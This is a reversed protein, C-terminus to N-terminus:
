KSNLSVCLFSAQNQLNSLFEDWFLDLQMGVKNESGRCPIEIQFDWLGRVSLMSFSFYNERGVGIRNGM